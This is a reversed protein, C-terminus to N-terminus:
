THDEGSTLVEFGSCLGGGTEAAMGQFPQFPRTHESHQRCRGCNAKAQFSNLIMRCVLFPLM